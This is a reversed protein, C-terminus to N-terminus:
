VKGSESESIVSHVPCTWITELRVPTLNMKCIPCTGPKTEVVDPHMPCTMSVPPVEAEPSAKGRQSPSPSFASPQPSLAFSPSLVFSPSLASLQSSLAAILLYLVFRLKSRGADTFRQPMVEM